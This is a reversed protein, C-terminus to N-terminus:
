LRAGASRTFLGNPRFAVVVLMAIFPLASAYDTLVYGGVVQEVLGILLAGVVVGGLSGFGGLIAAAFASLMVPFGFTVDFPALPAILVAAVGALAASMGFAMMSLANVRVGYLRATTRDAATARLQRGLATRHFMWMTALWIVATAAIIVIRQDAISAGLVHVTRLGVPSRLSRLEASLFIVLLTRIILAVGLTAIVVVHVSRNRLPAYAVRELAVGMVFMVAVTLVYTAGIPVGRSAIWAALYAGASLMDGQAFNVVGTANYIMLFGLAVLSIIAGQAVGSSLLFVFKAM